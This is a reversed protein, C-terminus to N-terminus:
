DPLVMERVVKGKSDELAVLWRKREPVFVPKIALKGKKKQLRTFVARKQVRKTITQPTKSPRIVQVPPATPKVEAPESVPAAARPTESAAGVFNLRLTSLLGPDIDGKSLDKSSITKVESRGEKDTGVAVKLELEANSLMMNVPMGLGSVMAKQAETFSRGTSDVLKELEIEDSKEDKPM